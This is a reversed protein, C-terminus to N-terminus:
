FVREAPMPVELISRLLQLWGSRVAPTKQLQSRVNSLHTCVKHGYVNRTRCPYTVDFFYPAKELITTGWKSNEASPIKLRCAGTDPEFAPKSPFAAMDLAKLANMEQVILRRGQVSRKFNKAVPEIHALAPQLRPAKQKESGGKGEFKRKKDKKDKKDKKKTHKAKHVAKAKRKMSQVFQSYKKFPRKRAQARDPVAKDGSVFSTRWGCARKDEAQLKAALSERSLKVTFSEIFEHAPM